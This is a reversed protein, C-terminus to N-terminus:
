YRRIDVETARDDATQRLQHQKEPGQLRTSVIVKCKARQEFAGTDIDLLDM